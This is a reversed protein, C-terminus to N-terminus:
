SALKSAMAERSQEAAAQSRAFLRRDRELGCDRLEAALSDRKEQWNPDGTFPNGQNPPIEAEITAHLREIVDPDSAAVLDGLGAIDGLFLERSAAHFRLDALKSDLAVNAVAALDDVRGHAQERTKPKQSRQAQFEGEIKVFRRGLQMDDLEAFRAAIRELEANDIETAM